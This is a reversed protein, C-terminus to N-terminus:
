AKYITCPQQGYAAFQRAEEWSFMGRNVFLRMVATRMDKCVICHIVPDLVLSVLLLLTSYMLIRAVAPTQDLVDLTYGM